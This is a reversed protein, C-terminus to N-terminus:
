NAGNATGGRALQTTVGRLRLAYGDAHRLDAYQLAANWRGRVQALTRLFREVRATLEDESGRGLVVSAGDELEVRWSGRGSLELKGIALGREAFAPQLRGWLALMPASM